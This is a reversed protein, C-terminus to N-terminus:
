LDRGSMMQAAALGLDRSIVDFVAEFGAFFAANLAQGPPSESFGVYARLDDEPLPQYALTLFGFLWEETERRVETEQSWVDALIESETLGGEFAGGDVMGRYFALNANLAGTVNLEILDNAEALRTIADLRPSDARRLDQVQARAAEEVAEDLLAQRAALELGVIRQGRESAFFALSADLAAPDAAMEPGFVADFRQLMAAPDYIDAVAQQWRVGGAGPFLEAELDAGYSLGEERMVLMLDDIRLLRSLEQVPQAALPMSVVQALVLFSAIRLLM